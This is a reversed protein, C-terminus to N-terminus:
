MSLSNLKMVPANDPMARSLGKTNPLTGIALGVGIKAQLGLLLLQSTFMGTHKRTEKLM